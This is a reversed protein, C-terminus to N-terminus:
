KGAEPEVKHDHYGCRQGINTAHNEPTITPKTGEHDVDERQGYNDAHDDPTITPKGDLYDDKERTPTTM